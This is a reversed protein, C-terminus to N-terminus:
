DEIRILKEVPVAKVFLTKGTRTKMTEVQSSKIDENKVWYLGKFAGREIRVNIGTGRPLRYEALLVKRDRYRPEWIKITSM